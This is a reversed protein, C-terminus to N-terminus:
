EDDWAWCCCCCCCCCGRGGDDNRLSCSKKEAARAALWEYGGGVENKDVRVDDSLGWVYLRGWSRCGNVGVFLGDSFEFSDM